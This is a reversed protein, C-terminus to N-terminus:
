ISGMEGFNPLVPAGDARGWLHLAHPHINIHERPPAFCQYAWGGGWVARHLLVLDDYTPTHPAAISAHLWDTNDWNASTVIISRGNTGRIIAGDPGFPDPPAWDRRGLVTRIRAADVFRTASM